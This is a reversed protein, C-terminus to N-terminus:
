GPRLHEQPESLLRVLRPHLVFIGLPFFWFLLIYLLMPEDAGAQKRLLSTAKSLFYLTYFAFYMFGLGIPWIAWRWGYEAPTHNNLLFEDSPFWIILAIYVVVYCVGTRFRRLNLSTPAGLQRFLEAGLSWFSWSLWCALLVFLGRGVTPNFQKAM